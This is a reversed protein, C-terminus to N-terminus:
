LQGGDAMKFDPGFPILSFSRSCRQEVLDSRMHSKNQTNININVVPHSLTSSNFESHRIEDSIYSEIGYLTFPGKDDM